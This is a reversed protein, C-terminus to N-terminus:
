ACIKTDITLLLQGTQLAQFLKGDMPGALCGDLSLQVGCVGWSGSVLAVGSVGLMEPVGGVGFTKGGRGREIGKGRCSGFAASGSDLM